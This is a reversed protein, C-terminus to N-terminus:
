QTQEKAPRDILRSLVFRGLGLLATGRLSKPVIVALLGLALGGGLLLAPSFQSAQHRLARTDRRMEGTVADLRRAAIAVELRAADLM